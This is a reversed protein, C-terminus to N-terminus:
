LILQSSCLYIFEVEFGPFIVRYFIFGEALCFKIILIAFTKIYNLARPVNILQAMIYDESSWLEDSNIHNWILEPLPILYLGKRSSETSKLTAWIFNFQPRM